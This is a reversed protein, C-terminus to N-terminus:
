PREGVRAPRVAQGHGADAPRRVRAPLRGYRDLPPETYKEWWRGYKDYWGPYKFEFWEFDDDDMGDIRWYNLIWGTAFLQAVEHVYGKNWIRNWAEEILDHPIALGYKELPVLYSRYHAGSSTALARSRRAALPSRRASLRSYAADVIDTRRPGNPKVQQTLKNQTTTPDV